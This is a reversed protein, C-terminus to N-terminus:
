IRELGIEDRLAQALAAAAERQGRPVVWCVEAQGRRSSVQALGEYAEVLFRVYAIHERAVRFRWTEEVDPPAYHTSSTMEPLDVVHNSLDRKQDRGPSGKYDM